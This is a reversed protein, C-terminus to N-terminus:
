KPVKELAPSALQATVGSLDSCRSAYFALEDLPGGADLAAGSDHALSVVEKVQRTWNVVTSELRQVLEKDGAAALLAADGMGPRAGLAAQLGVEPPVYLVTVGRVQHHTATLSAVFSRSSLSPTPSTLVRLLCACHVGCCLWGRWGVRM